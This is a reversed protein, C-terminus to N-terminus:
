KPCGQQIWCGFMDIQAQPWEQEGSGPPPMSGASVQNYIPVANIMVSQYDSLDIGKAKMHAIDIATFYGQIDKWRVPAPCNLSSFFKRDHKQDHTM